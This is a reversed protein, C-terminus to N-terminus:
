RSKKKSIKRRSPHHGKTMELHQDCSPFFFGEDAKLRPIKKGEDQSPTGNNNIKDNVASIQFKAFSICLIEM